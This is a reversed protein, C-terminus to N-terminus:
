LDKIAFKAVCDAHKAGEVLLLAGVVTTQVSVMELAKSLSFIDIHSM